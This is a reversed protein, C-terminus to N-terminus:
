GGSALIMQEFYLQEAAIGDCQMLDSICTLRSGTFAYRQLLVVKRYCCHLLVIFVSLGWLSTLLILRLFARHSVFYIRPLILAYFGWRNPVSLCHWGFPIKIETCDLCHILLYSGQYSLFLFHSSRYIHRYIHDIYVHHYM